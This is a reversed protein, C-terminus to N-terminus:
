DEGTGLDLLGPPPDLVVGAGAPDVEIVIQDVFPVLAQGGGALSVELLDQAPRLHLTEVTGVPTGDVSRVALGELDEPYWGEEPADPDDTTAADAEVFLRTGRLAEAATRDPAEEFALLQITGHMRAARLTLPGRSAPETRFRAGPVFRGAPDDTHVQVTVEGRLAHPKGIRAVLVHTDEPM